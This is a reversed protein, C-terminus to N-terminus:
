AARRAIMGTECFFEYAERAAERISTPAYGLEERALSIDAHRNM